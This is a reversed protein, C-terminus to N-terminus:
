IQRLANVYENRAQQYTMRTSIIDMSVLMRIVQDLQAIRIRRTQQIRILIAGMSFMDVLSLIQANTIRRSDKIKVLQNYIYQVPDPQNYAIFDVINPIFRQNNQVYEQSFQLIFRNDIQRRPVDRNNFSHGSILMLYPPWYIYKPYYYAGDIIDAPPNDLSLGFDIFKYINNRVDLLVNEEKIDIHYFNQNHFSILGDFLNVLGRLIQVTDATTRLVKYLDPGGRQSVITYTTDKNSVCPSRRGTQPPPIPINRTPVNCEALQIFHYKGTPDFRDIFRNQNREERGYREKHFTKSVCEQTDCDAGCPNIEPSWVCGYTGSNIFKPINRVERFIDKLENTQDVTLDQGLLLQNKLGELYPILNKLSKEPESNIKVIMNSIIELVNARYELNVLFAQDTASLGATQGRLLQLQQDYNTIGINLLQRQLADIRQQETQIVQQLQQEIMQINRLDYRIGRRLQEIVNNVESLVNVDTIGRTRLLQQINMVYQLQQGQVYQQLQNLYTLQEQTLLVGSEYWQKLLDEIQQRNPINPVIERIYQVIRNIQRRNNRLQQTLLEINNVIDQLYQNEEQTLPEIKDYLIRLQQEIQDYNPINLRVTRLRADIDNILQQQRSKDFEPINSPYTISMQSLERSM